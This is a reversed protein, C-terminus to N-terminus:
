PHSRLYRACAIRVNAATNGGGVSQAVAEWTMCNVYRHWLLIRIWADEVNSIYRMIRNMERVRKHILENLLNKADAIEAAIATKDSIRGSFGAGSTNPTTSTAIAELEVIKRELEEREKKLAWLQNLREATM